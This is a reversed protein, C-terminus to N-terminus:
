DEHYIELYDAKIMMNNRIKYTSHNPISINSGAKSLVKRTPKADREQIDIVIEGSMLVIIKSISEKVLEECMAYLMKEQVKFKIEINEVM